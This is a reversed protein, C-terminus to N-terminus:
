EKIEAVAELISHYLAEAVREQEKKDFIRRLDEPDTMFGTEVIVAPMNPYKVMYLHPANGLLRNTFSTKEAYNKLLIQALKKASLGSKERGKLYYVDTGQIKRDKVKTANNHLSIFFDAEVENALTARQRASPNSDDLRSYYVKIGATQDLKQKLLLAVEINATKEYYDREGDGLDARRIAGTDKGGHGIDIFVVKEFIEKPKRASIYVNDRDEAVTLEHVTPFTFHWRGDKEEVKTIYKDGIWLTGNLYESYPFSLSAQRGHLDFVYDMKKLDFDQPKKITLIGNQYQIQRTKEAFLRLTQGQPAYGVKDKLWLTIVVKHRNEERIAMRSIFDSKVQVDQNGVLNQASAVELELVNGAVKRLVPSIPAFSELTLVEEEGQRELVVQFLANSIMEVSLREGLEDVRLIVDRVSSKVAFDMTVEKEDGEKSSVTIESVTADKPYSLQSKRLAVKANSFQIRLQEQRYDAVIKGIKNSAAISFVNGHKTNAKNVSFISTTSDQGEEKTQSAGSLIVLPKDKVRFEEQRSFVLPLSRMPEQASVSGIFLTWFLGSLLLIQWVLIRKKIEMRQKM